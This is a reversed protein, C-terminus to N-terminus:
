TRTPCRRAARAPRQLRPLRLVAAVPRGRHVPDRRRRLRRQLLGPVQEQKGNHELIPDFYSTGPRTPRSASGAAGSSWRSRSGRTSRAPAPRQRGPAVQRLDRDPLRGPRADRRAHGRGPADDVAGPLHGGRRDPLQVPRDDPQVADALLRALRLVLRFRVSERALADLRPTRIRPNGHFGLDGYGQDDTIILLVNPRRAEPTSPEASALHASSPAVLIAWAIWISMSRKM